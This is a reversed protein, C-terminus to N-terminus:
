MESKSHAQHESNSRFYAVQDREQQSSFNALVEREVPQINVHHCSRDFACWSDM